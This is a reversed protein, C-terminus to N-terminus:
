SQRKMWEKLSDKLQEYSDTVFLIPQYHDIEFSQSIVKDLDFDVKQVADTLCHAGEGPSSMLGSGFLKVQGDERILGFEVTFWFLRALETLKAEDTTQYAVSGYYQLFDGFATNAHMPVHGFVDHFIDPEPLYDLQDARRITITTPFMRKSLSLFFEKAPLYGPVAM